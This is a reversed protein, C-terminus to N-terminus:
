GPVKVSYKSAVACDKVSQWVDEAGGDRDKDFYLVFSDFTRTRIQLPYLGHITQPLRTFLTIAPYSVWLEATSSGGSASSSPDSNSPSFILHHPTLHVTGTQRVRSPTGDARQPQEFRELTVNDVKAVRISDM